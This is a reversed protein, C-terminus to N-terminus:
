AGVVRSAALHRFSQQSLMGPVAELNIAGTKLGPVDIGEGALDHCFHPDVQAALVGFPDFFVQAFYIKSVDDAHKIPGFLDAGGGKGADQPLAQEPGKFIGDGKLPSILFLQGFKPFDSVLDVAPYEL